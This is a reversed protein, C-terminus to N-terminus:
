PADPVNALIEALDEVKGRAARQEFTDRVKWASVQSSLAISIISDVTTGERRAVEEAQRILFDPISAQVIMSAYAILNVISSQQNQFAAPANAVNSVPAARVPM